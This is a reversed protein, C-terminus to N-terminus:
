TTSTSSGRAPLFDFAVNNFTYKVMQALRARGVLTILSVKNLMREM